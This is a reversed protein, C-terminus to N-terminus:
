NLSHILFNNTSPSFLTVRQEQEQTTRRCRTVSNLGEVTSSIFIKELVDILSLYTVTFKNVLM